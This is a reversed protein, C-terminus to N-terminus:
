ADIPNFIHHANPLCQLSHILHPIGMDAYQAGGQRCGHVMCTLIRPIRTVEYLALLTRPLHLVLFIIGVGMMVRSLLIDQFFSFPV